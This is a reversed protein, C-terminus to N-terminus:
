RSMFFAFVFIGALLIATSIEIVIAKTETRMGVQTRYPDTNLFQDNHRQDVRRKFRIRYDDFKEVLEWGAKAEEDCLQQVARRNAFRNSGSRVIKFEWGDLDDSNYKTLDEEEERNRAADEAKKRAIVTPVIVPVFSM